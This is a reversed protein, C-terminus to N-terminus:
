SAKTDTKNKMVDHYKKMLDIPSNIVTVQLYDSNQYKRPLGADLNVVLGNNKLARFLKNLEAAQVNSECPIKFLLLEERDVLGLEEDEDQIINSTRIKLSAPYPQGNDMTGAGGPTVTSMEALEYNLTFGKKIFEM